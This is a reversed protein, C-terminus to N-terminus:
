SNEQSSREAIQKAERITDANDLKKGSQYITYGLRSTGTNGDPRIQYPESTYTKTDKDFNWKLM